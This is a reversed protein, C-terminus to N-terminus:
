YLGNIKKKFLIGCHSVDSHTAMKLAECQRSNSTQFIIDGNEYKVESLHKKIKTNMKIQPWLFFTVISLLVVIIGIKRM